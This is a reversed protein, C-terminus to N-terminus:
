FRQGGTQYCTFSLLDRNCRWTVVNYEPQVKRGYFTVKMQHKPADDRCSVDSMTYGVEKGLRAAAESDLPVSGCEKSEGVLWNNSVSISTDEQHSVWGISDFWRYGGYVVGIAIVILILNGAAGSSESYPEVTRESLKRARDQADLRRSAFEEKAAQIADLTYDQPHAYLIDYLEKDTKGRALLAALLLSAPSVKEQSRM